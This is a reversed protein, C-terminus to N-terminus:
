DGMETDPIWVGADQTVNSSLNASPQILFMPVLIQFQEILPYNCRPHHSLRDSLM